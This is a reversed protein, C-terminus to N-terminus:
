GEKKHLAFERPKAQAEISSILHHQSFLWFDPSICCHLLRYSSCLSKHICFKMGCDRSNARSVEFFKLCKDTLIWRQRSRSRRAAMGSQELAHRQLPLPVRVIDRR